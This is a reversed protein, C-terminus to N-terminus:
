RNAVSALTLGCYAAAKDIPSQLSDVWELIENRSQSRDQLRAEAVAAWAKSRYWPQNASVHRAHELAKEWQGDAALSIALQQRPRNSDGFLALTGRVLNSEALAFEGALADATALILKMESGARGQTILSQASRRATRYGDTNGREASLIALEGYARATQARVSASINRQHSREVLDPLAAELGEVDKAWAAVLASPDRYPRYKSLPIADPGIGTEKQFRTFLAKLQLFNWDNYTATANMFGAANALNLCTEMAGRSDGLDAQMVALHRHCTVILGITRKENTEHSKDAYYYGGNYSLRAPPRADWVISWADFLRDDIMAVAQRYRQTQRLLNSTRAIQLWAFASDLPDNIGAAVREAADVLSDADTIDPRQSEPEDSSSTKHNDTSRFMTARALGVYASARQSALPLSQTWEAVSLLSEGSRLRHEAHSACAPSAWRQEAFREFLEALNRTRVEQPADKMIRFLLSARLSPDPINNAIIVAARWRRQLLNAEALRAAFLYNPYTGTPLRALYSEAKFM